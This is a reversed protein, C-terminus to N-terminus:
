APPRSLRDVAAQRADGGPPAPVDDRLHDGAAGRGRCLRHARDKFLDTERFAAMSARSDWIMIGAYHNPTEGKLYYKQILGPTAAYRAERERAVKTCEAETLTSEFQVLQVIM